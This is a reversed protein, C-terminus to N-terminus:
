ARRTFRYSTATVTAHTKHCPRCSAGHQPRSTLRCADCSMVLCTGAAEAELLMAETDRVRPAPSQAATIRAAPRSPPTQTHPCTPSPHHAPQPTSESCPRDHSTHMPLRTHTCADTCPLSLSSAQTPQSPSTRYCINTIRKKPSSYLVHHLLFGKSYQHMDTCHLCLCEARSPSCLQRRCPCTVHRTRCLKFM